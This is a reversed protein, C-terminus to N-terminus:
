REYAGGSLRRKLWQHAVATVAEFLQKSDAHQIAHVYNLEEILAKSLATMLEIQVPPTNEGALLVVAIEAREGRKTAVSRQLRWVTMEIHDIVSTKVHLLIIQEERLVTSGLKERESLERILRKRSKGDHTRQEAIQKILDTLNRVMVSEYLAFYKEILLVGETMDRINRIHDTEIEATENREVSQELPMAVIKQLWKVDDELLLPNVLVVPIDLTELPITSVLLDLQDIPARKSMIDVKSYQGVLDLMPFLKQLRSSLLSSTGIGSSCVVGTKIRTKKKEKQKREVAAGFHMALYGIEAEPFRLKYTNEIGEVAQKSLKFIQPYMEKIKELLPNRIDMSLSMRTLAPKLHGVLGVLLKEDHGLDYGSSKKFAQIMGSAMRTVEFNSLILDDQVISGTKLKSGKLHMTIYGMEDEPFVIGFISEVQKGIASALQFQSDSKLSDLIDKPMDIREESLVRQVAIALHISLASYANETLRESLENEFTHLIGKVRSLVDSDLVMEAIAAQGRIEDGEYEYLFDVLAKRYNTESGKLYVGYGPKRILELGRSTLWPEIKDMDYSITAESVGLTKAFSFFKQPTRSKLLEILIMRHREEQTFGELDQGQLLAKFAERQSDTAELWIGLRTKKNLTMGLRDVLPEVSSMERFVTRKSVGIQEAIAEMPVYDDHGLLAEVIDLVRKSYRM